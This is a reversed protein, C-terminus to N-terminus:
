NTLSIECSSLLHFLLLMYCSFFLKVSCWSLCLASHIGVVPALVSKQPSDSLSIMQPFTRRGINFGYIQFRHSTDQSGVGVSLTCCLYRNPSGQWLDSFSTPAQWMYRLFFTPM